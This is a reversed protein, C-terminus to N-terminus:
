SVEGLRPEMSAVKRQLESLIALKGELIAVTSRLQTLEDFQRGTLATFGANLALQEAPQATRAAGRLTFFAVIVAAASTIVAIVVTQNMAPSGKPPRHAGTSRDAHRTGGM